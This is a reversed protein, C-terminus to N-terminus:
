LVSAMYDAAAKCLLRHYTGFTNQSDNRHNQIQVYKRM